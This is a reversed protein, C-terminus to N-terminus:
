IATTDVPPAANCSIAYRVMNGDVKALGERVMPTQDQQATLKAIGSKHLFRSFSMLEFAEEGKEALTEMAQRSQLEPPM